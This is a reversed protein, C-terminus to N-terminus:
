KYFGGKNGRGVRLGGAMLMGEPKEKWLRKKGGVKGPLDKGAEQLTSVNSILRLKRIFAPNM